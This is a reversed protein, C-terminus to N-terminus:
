NENGSSFPHCFMKRFDINIEREREKEREGGRERKKGRGKERSTREKKRGILMFINCM